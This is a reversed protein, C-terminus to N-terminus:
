VMFAPLLPFQLGLLWVFLVLALVILVAAGGLTEMWSAERGAFRAGILLVVLSLVLGASPLLIGFVAVSATVALLPRWTLKEIKAGAETGRLAGVLVIVGIVALLIGLSFPFYGPGMRAASGMRYTLAGIAFGSGLLFFLLGAAIDKHNALTM